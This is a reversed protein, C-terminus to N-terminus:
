LRAMPKSPVGNDGAFIAAFRPRLEELLTEGRSVQGRPASFLKNLRGMNSHQLEAARKKEDASRSADCLKAWEFALAAERGSETPVLEVCRVECNSFPMQMQPTFGAFAANKKHFVSMAMFGAHSVVAVVREPRALVLRIAEAARHSADVASEREEGWLNDAESLSSFDVAPFDKALATRTRRRECPWRGSRERWLETAIIPVGLGGFVATATAATRSLPSTIVVEPMPSLQVATRRLADAEERGHAALRSDHFGLAYAKLVQEGSM